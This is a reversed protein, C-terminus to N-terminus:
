RGRQVAQRFRWLVIRPLRRSVALLLSMRKRVMARLSAHAMQSVNTSHRRYEILKYKTFEVRGALSSCLGIWEDHLGGATAPFPLLFSRADCRVAMCCGVFGNKYLNHWFGVSSDRLDFLSERLLNRREDVVRADSVVVLPNESDFIRSITSVKDPEWIDDQDSLFIYKGKALSVAREFSAAPGSNVENHLLIIRPDNARRIVDVSGDASCDDVIILEDDIALQVLITRLQEELYTEGNFVAM